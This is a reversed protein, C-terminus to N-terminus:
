FPCVYTHSNVNLVVKEGGYRYISLPWNFKLDSYPIIKRLGRPVLKFYLTHIDFDAEMVEVIFYKVHDVVIVDRLEAFIPLENEDYLLVIGCGVRYENGHIVVRETHYASDIVIGCFEAMSERLDPYKESFAIESGSSVVDGEYLFCSSRGGEWGKQMYAMYLQHRSALTLPLNKFNKYKKNAFYGNKGEFRMCWHHRLPGYLLMQSPLHVMYHMKPIFSAKPYLEKFNHLYEAILIKLYVATERTCYSSTCFVVIQVLRLMNVWSKNEHPVRSGIIIPLTHVLTLMASSTQKISGSGDIHSREIPEPKSNTHLYSYAFGLIATNLWKLTFLSDVYIFRYLVQSLEHPVVGELLVHMPDQVLGSMMDFGKVELLVSEGNIGWLKSWYTKAERSMGKLDNCREIHMKGNRLSVQEECFVTKLAKSEGDCHRCNKLAFGVGEKFKGLWNSALTDAAAVVLTGKILHSSGHLEMQIGDNELEQVTNIFDSLLCEESKQVRSDKSKCIALLQIVQLRSRYQPPINALTFYFMTVKHKKVHSGLPNVIEVDDCNIVIQLANRDNTYLPHNTVVDGDSIDYMFGDGPTTRKTIYGWVEPLLLMQQLSKKFPVIYGVKPVRKIVGNKTVLKEGLVIRQPEIYTDLNKRYYSKRKSDTSFTDLGPDVEIDTLLSADVGSQQLWEAVRQKYALIHNEVLVNTTSVVGDIATQSLNHKAELSLTFMANFDSQTPAKILPVFEEEPDSLENEYGGNHAVRGVLAVCSHKRSVHMKYNVWKKTTYGCSGICCAVHFNPDNKHSRIFHKRFSEFSDTAYVCLSCRFINEETSSM